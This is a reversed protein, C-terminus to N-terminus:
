VEEHALAISGFELLSLYIATAKRQDHKQSGDAPSIGDTYLPMHKPGLTSCTEKMLDSFGQSKLCSQHLMACPNQVALDLPKGKARPVPISLILPGYPTLEKYKAKRARGQTRSSYASPM